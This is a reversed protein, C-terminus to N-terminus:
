NLDCAAADVWYITDGSSLFGGVSEASIFRVSHPEFDLLPYRASEGSQRNFVVLGEESYALLFEDDYEDVRAISGHRFWDILAVVRRDPTVEFLGASTPIVESGDKLLIPDEISVGAFDDSLVHVTGDSDVLLLRREGQMEQVLVRGGSLEWIDVDTSPSVAVSMQNGYTVLAGDVAALFLFRNDTTLYVKSPEHLKEDVPLPVIRNADLIGIHRDYIVILDDKISRGIWRVHEGSAVPVSSPVERISGGSELFFVRGDADSAVYIGVSPEVLVVLSGLDFRGLAPDGPPFLRYAASRLIESVGSSKLGIVRGDALVVLSEWHGPTDLERLENSPSLEVIRNIEPAWLNGDPLEVFPALTAFRGHRFPLALNRFVVPPADSQLVVLDAGDNMILVRGDSLAQLVTESASWTAWSQDPDARFSLVGSKSVIFTDGWGAVVLKDHDFPAIEGIRGISDIDPISVVCESASVPTAPLPIAIGVLVAILAVRAASLM